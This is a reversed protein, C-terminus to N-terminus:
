VKIEALPKRAMLFIIWVLSLLLLMAVFQHSVGLWLLATKDPSYIVTLIGLSVQLLVLVVPIVRTKRFLSTSPLKLARAWWIFVLVTIIYALLRHIFQVTIPDNFINNMGEPIWAGNITPWTTAYAAAKLGAMFAGYILQLILLDMLLWTFRHLSLLNIKQDEAIM